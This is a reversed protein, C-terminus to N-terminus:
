LTQSQCTCVARNLHFLWHPGVQYCLSSQEINHLLIIPFIIQFLISVLIHIFSESQWIGLGKMINNM